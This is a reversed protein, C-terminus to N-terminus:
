DSSSRFWSTATRMPRATSTTFSDTSEFFPLADCKENKDLMDRQVHNDAVEKMDPKRCGGACLVLGLCGCSIWTRSSWITM